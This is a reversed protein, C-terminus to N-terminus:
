CLIFWILLQLSFFIRAGLVYFMSLLWCFCVILSDKCACLAIKTLRDTEMYIIPQHWRRTTEKAHWTHTKEHQDRKEEPGDSKFAPLTNRANDYNVFRRIFPENDRSITFKIAAFFKLLHSIRSNIKSEENKVHVRMTETLLRRGSIACTRKLEGKCMVVTCQHHM